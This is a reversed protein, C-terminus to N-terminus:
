VNSDEDQPKDYAQPDYPKATTRTRDRIQAKAKASKKLLDRRSSRLRSKGKRM